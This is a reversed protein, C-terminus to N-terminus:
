CNDKVVFHLDTCNFNNMKQLLLNKFSNIDVNHHEFDDFCAGSDGIFFEVEKKTELIERATAVIIEMRNEFPINNQRGNYYCNDPLLFCDCNDFDNSDSISFFQKEQNLYKKLFPEIYDFEFFCALGNEQLLRVIKNKQQASSKSNIIGICFKSM